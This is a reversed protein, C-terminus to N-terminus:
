FGRMTVNQVYNRCLSVVQEITERSYSKKLQLSKDLITPLPKFQQFVLLRSGELISAIELLDEGDLMTPVVTTRFEYEIHSNDLLSITHEIDSYDAKGGTLMGYKHPPAKFDVAVYDLCGTELLNGLLEPNSGNTDLKVMLGMDKARAIFFSLDKQLTPEGGSVCVAGQLSIRKELLSFVDEERILPLMDPHLVLDSNFCYPCRFNCGGVFVTSCIQSPFDVFSTTQFGRIQM